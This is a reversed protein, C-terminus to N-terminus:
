STATNKIAEIGRQLGQKYIWLDGWYAICRFGRRILAQGEEISSAMFGAAKGHHRCAELVAELAKLYDPHDFQGPLGMSNTLDFHGIWLVDIGDVAAISDANEVGKATEVQAILLREDNASQMKAIIDTSTYDDHAIGFAAGRHGAPPYATSDVILRAQEASEVMPVMLGMAGIDMSRALFHYQTAPVRILPVVPSSRASAVLDRVTEFSWGTHEMDFVLFDAGAESAIRGMGPTSFEFVMSGVSVGGSRLSRKVQNDRM